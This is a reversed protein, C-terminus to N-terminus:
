GHSMDWSPRSKDYKNVELDKLKAEVCQTCMRKDSPFNRPAHPCSGTMWAVMGKIGVRVGAKFSIEAQNERDQLLEEASFAYLTKPDPNIVRIVTDKAEM